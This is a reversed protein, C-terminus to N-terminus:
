AKARPPSPFSVSRREVLRSVLRTVPVQAATVAPMSPLSHNVSRMSTVPAGPLMLMLVNKFPVDTCSQVLVLALEAGALPGPPRMVYPVVVADKSSKM